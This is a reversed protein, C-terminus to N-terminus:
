FLVLVLYYYISYDFTLAELFLFDYPESISTSRVVM